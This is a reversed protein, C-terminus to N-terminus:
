KANEPVLPVSRRRWPADPILDTDAGTPPRGAPSRPIALGVRLVDGVRRTWSVTAGLGDILRHSVVRDAALGPLDQVITDPLAVRRTDIDLRAGNGARLHVGGGLGIVQVFISDIGHDFVAGSRSLGDPDNEHTELLRATVADSCLTWPPPARPDLGATRLRDERRDLWVLDAAQRAIAKLDCAHADLRAQLGVDSALPHRRSRIELTAPRDPAMRMAVGHRDMDLGLSAFLAPCGDEVVKVAWDPADAPMSM